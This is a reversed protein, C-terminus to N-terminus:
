GQDASSAPKDAASVFDYEERFCEPDTAIGEIDAFMVPDARLWAAALDVNELPPPQNDPDTSEWELIVSRVYVRSLIRAATDDTVADAALATHYPQIEEAMVRGFKTNFGGAFAVRFALGGPYGV